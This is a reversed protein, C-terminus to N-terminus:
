GATCAPTRARRRVPDDADREQDPAHLPRPLRPRVDVRSDRDRLVGTTQLQLFALPFAAAALRAQDARVRPLQRRPVGEGDAAAALTCGSAPWCGRTCATGPTTPCSRGRRHVRARLQVRAAAQRAACCRSSTCRTTCRRPRRSSSCTSSTTRSSTACSTRSRSRRQEIQRQHNNLERLAIDRRREAGLIQREIQEIEIGLM